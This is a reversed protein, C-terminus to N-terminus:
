FLAGSLVHEYIKKGNVRSVYEAYVGQAVRSILESIFGLNTHELMNQEIPSTTKM